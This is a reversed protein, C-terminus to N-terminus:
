NDSQKYSVGLATRRPKFLRTSLNKATEERLITLDLQEYEATANRSEIYKQFDNILHYKVGTDSKHYCIM